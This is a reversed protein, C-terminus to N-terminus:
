VSNTVGFVGVFTTVVAAVIGWIEPSTFGDDAATAAATVGALVGGMIAKRYKAPDKLTEKVPEKPVEETIAM